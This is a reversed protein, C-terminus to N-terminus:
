LLGKNQALRLLKPTNSVGAKKLMNKRHTAVTNVSLDLREAIEQTNLAKDLLQLIRMESRTFYRSKQFVEQFPRYLLSYDHTPGFISLMPSAEPPRHSVDTVKELSFILNGKLDYALEISQQLIHVYRGDINRMQYDFNVSYQYRLHEPIEYKLHHTARVVMQSFAEADKSRMRQMVFEVGGRYFTEASYGLVNEIESSIYQYQRLHFDYVFLFSPGLNLSNQGRLKPQLSKKYDSLDPDFDQHHLLHAKNDWRSKIQSITSQYAM